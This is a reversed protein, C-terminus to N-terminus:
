RARVAWRQGLRGFLLGGGLCIVGVLIFADQWFMLPFLRILSDTYLFLWTDGTFFLQHFATFLANFSTLVFVLATIILGITLWGGRSFGRLYDALWRAKWAWIGLIIFTGMQLYWIKSAQQVLVKVDLMHSLERENYLPIGPELEQDALFSLDADNILYEVSLGGWRLRDATTFGYPDAPFGPRLNYEFQLFLPTMLLRVGLMILFFPITLAITWSLFAPYHKM